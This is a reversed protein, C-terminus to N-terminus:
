FKLQSFIMKTKERIFNKNNSLLVNLQVSIIQGVKNNFFIQTMYLQNHMKPDVCSVVIIV